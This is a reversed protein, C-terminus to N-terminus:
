NIIEYKAEFPLVLTDRVSFRPYYFQGQITDFGLNAKKSIKTSYYAIGERTILKEAEVDGHFNWAIHKGYTFAKFKYSEGFHVVQSEPVICVRGVTYYDFFPGGMIQSRLYKAAVLLARRVNVQIGCLLALVAISNEKKGNFTPIMGWNKTSLNEQVYIQLQSQAKNETLQRIKKEFAQIKHRLFDIKTTPIQVFSDRLLSLDSIFFSDAECIDLKINEINDYINNAEASITKLKESWEKVGKPHFKM